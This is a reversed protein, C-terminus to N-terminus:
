FKTLCFLYEKIEKDENYEYSKFRKYDREIVTVTGYERMLEMMKEQSLLSESNYSVFIYRCAFDKFCKKFAAEVEKKQCFPSIFCSAPIGTLGKIVEKDQDSPKLAIINLPFYNKSYQRENYPPDLYIADCDSSASVIDADLVDKKYTSHVYANPRTYTHIAKLQLTKKAKDKFNKLYCGYVAPVNSVADASLLLSALIMTYTNFSLDLEELRRRIYDIRRANELTFFMRECPPLPSYNKTIFGTEMSHKNDRLETNLLIIIEQINTTYVRHSLAETIISSYLEADNSVVAAGNTRFFYSVIGTGAFFDGISKGEFSSWGTSKLMSEKLWDLLQYKSGIYNLRSVTEVM